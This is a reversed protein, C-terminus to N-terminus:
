DPWRANIAAAAAQEVQRPLVAGTAALADLNADDLPLEGSYGAMALRHALYGPVRNRSLPRVNSTFVQGSDLQECHLNALRPEIAPDAALLLRFRGGVAQRLKDYVTLLRGLERDSLADADDVVLVAPHADAVVSRLQRVLERFCEGTDDPVPRILVRLMDVIVREAATAASGRVVFYHYDNGTRAMLQILLSTKGSGAEGRLIPLMAGSRLQEALANLQMAIADDRFLEHPAANDRFPQRELGLMWCARAGLTRTPEERATDADGGHEDKGPWLRRLATGAREIISM